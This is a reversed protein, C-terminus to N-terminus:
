PNYHVSPSLTLEFGETWKEFKKCGRSLNYFIEIWIKFILIPIFREFTYDLESMCGFGQM